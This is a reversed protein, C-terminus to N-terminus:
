STSVIPYGKGCSDNKFQAAHLRHEVTCNVVQFYFYVHLVVLVISIFFSFLSCLISIEANQKRKCTESFGHM